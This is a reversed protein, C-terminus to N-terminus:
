SMGRHNELYRVGARLVEADDQGYGLMSNCQLCLLGRFTLTEHCHDLYLGHKNGKAIPDAGCVECHGENALFSAAAKEVEEASLGLRKAKTRFWSLSGSPTRRYDSYYQNYEAKDKFTKKASERAAQSACPKCRSQLSERGKPNKRTTYESAPKDEKCKSCVKHTQM